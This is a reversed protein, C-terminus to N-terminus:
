KNGAPPKERDVVGAAVPTGAATGAADAAGELKEKPGVGVVVFGGKNPAIPRLTPAVGAAVGAAERDNPAGAGAREVVVAAGIEEAAGAVGADENEKPPPAVRVGALVAAATAGVRPVDVNPAVGARPADEKPADGARPVDEKPAVGVRDRFREL